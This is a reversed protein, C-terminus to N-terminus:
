SREQQAEKFEARTAASLFLGFAYDKKARGFPLCVPLQATKRRDRWAQAVITAIDKKSGGFGYAERMERAEFEVASRLERRTDCKIVTANDPMYCVRLGSSMHFYAM